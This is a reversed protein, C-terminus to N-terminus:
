GFRGFQAEFELWGLFDPHSTGLFGKHARFYVSISQGECIEFFTTKAPFAANLGQINPWLGLKGQPFGLFHSM